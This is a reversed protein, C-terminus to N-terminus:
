VYKNLWQKGVLSCPAGMYLIMTNSKVEEKDNLVVSDVKVEEEIEDAVVEKKEDALVEKEVVLDEENEDVLGSEKEDAVKEEKESELDEENKNIIENTQETVAKLIETKNGARAFNFTEIFGIHGIKAIHNDVLESPIHCNRM